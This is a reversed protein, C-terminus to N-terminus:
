AWLCKLNSPRVVVIFLLTKQLTVVHLRCITGSTELFRNRWRWTCRNPSRPSFYHPYLFIFSRFHTESRVLARSFSGEFALYEKSQGGEENSQEPDRNRDRGKTERCGCWTKWANSVWRSFCTGELKQYCYLSCPSVNRFVSIKKWSCMLFNLLKELM